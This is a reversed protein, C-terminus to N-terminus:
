AANRWEIATTRKFGARECYHQLGGKKGRGGQSPPVAVLMHLGIALPLVENQRNCTVLEKLADEDSLEVVKCPIETVGARRAGELRHHGDIVQYGGNHPRVKPAHNPDFHGLERMRAAIFEVTEEDLELRVNHPHAHLDAMSVMRIDVLEGLLSGGLIRTQETVKLSQTRTEGVGSSTPYERRYPTVPRGM